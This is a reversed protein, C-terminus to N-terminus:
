DSPPPDPLSMTDIDWLVAAFGDSIETSLGILEDPSATLAEQEYVDIADAIARAYGVSTERCQYSIRYLERLINLQEDTYDGDLAGTMTSENQWHKPPEGYKIGRGVRDALKEFLNAWEHQLKTRLQIEVPAQHVYAIVHVARYGYSPNKRRDVVSPPSDDPGRFLSKLDEAIQDQEQRNCDSVIRMGGLDQM